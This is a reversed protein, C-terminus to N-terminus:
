VDHLDLVEYPPSMWPRSWISASVTKGAPSDLPPCDEITVAEGENVCATPSIKITLVYKVGSVVQQTGTVQTHVFAYVSNSQANVNKMAFLVAGQVLPENVDEIPVPAGVRSEASAVAVLCVAVLLLTKM